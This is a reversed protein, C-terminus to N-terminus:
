PGIRQRRISQRKQAKWEIRSGAILVPGPGPEVIVVAGAGVGGAPSSIMSAKKRAVISRWVRRGSASYNFGGGNLGARSWRVWVPGPGPGPGPGLAAPEWV